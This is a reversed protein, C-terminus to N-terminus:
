KKFDPYHYWDMLAEKDGVWKGERNLGRNILEQKMLDRVPIDGDLAKILLETDIQQFMFMPNKEDRLVKKREEKAFELVDM